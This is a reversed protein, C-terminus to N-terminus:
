AEEIVFEFVLFSVVLFILDFALLLQLWPALGALSKGAFITGTSKIAAIIVPVIIPFLLLPLMVEKARTHVSIASFLTGVAAYGLTSLVLVLALERAMSLLPLNFLVAFVPVIIAEMIFIFILNGLFKGLFILGRDVPCLVLGLLCDEEKELAFSRNLGLIGAFTIAVWLIGPTSEKAAPSGPEFAFNFIVVVLLGFIFMPTLMEKSRLEILIDKWAISWVPMLYM